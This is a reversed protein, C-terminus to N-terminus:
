KIGTVQQQGLWRDTFTESTLLSELEAMKVIGRLNDFVIIPATTDTLTSLVGKRFEDGARPMEGRIVGGHLEVLMNALLTKGTGPNTATVVGMQYPPPLLPRLAPTFAM